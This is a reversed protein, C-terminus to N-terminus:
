KFDFNLLLLWSVFFNVVLCYCCECQVRPWCIENAWTAEPTWSGWVSSWMDTQPWGPAWIYGGGIGAKTRTGKNLPGCSVHKRSQIFLSTARVEVECSANSMFNCSKAERCYEGNNKNTSWLSFIKIKM